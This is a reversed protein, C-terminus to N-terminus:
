IGRKALDDLMNRGKKVGENVAWLLFQNSQLERRLERNKERLRRRDMLLWGVAFSLILILTWDVIIALM